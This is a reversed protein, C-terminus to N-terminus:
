SMPGMQLTQKVGDIKQWCLLASVDNVHCLVGRRRRKRVTPPASPPSCSVSGELLLDYKRGFSKCFMYGINHGTHAMSQITHATMNGM